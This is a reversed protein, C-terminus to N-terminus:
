DNINNEQIWFELLVVLGIFKVKKDSVLNTMYTDLDTSIQKNIFNHNKFDAIIRKLELEEYEERNQDMHFLLSTSTSVLSKPNPLGKLKLRIIDPTNIFYQQIKQTLFPLEYKFNKSNSFQYLSVLKNNAIETQLELIGIKSLYPFQFGATQFSVSSKIFTKIQDELQINFSSQLKELPYLRKYIPYLYELDFYDQKILDTYDSGLDKKNPIDIWRSIIRRLKKPYSLLWRKSQFADLQSYLAHNATIIATGISSNLTDINELNNISLLNLFNASPHDINQISAKLKPVIDFSEDITKIFTDPNKTNELLQDIHFQHQEITKENATYDYYSTINWYKEVIVEDENLILYQAPELQGIGEILTHPAMVFGYSLYTAVSQLNLKLTIEKQLFLTKITTSFAFFHDSKFYYLPIVGFRDRYLFIKNIQSDYLSISFAGEIHNVFLPGWKEYAKAVLQEKSEFNGLENSLGTINQINGELCIELHQISKSSTARFEKYNYTATYQAM